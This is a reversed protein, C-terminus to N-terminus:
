RRARRYPTLGREAKEGEAMGGNRLTMGTARKIGVRTIEHRNMNM